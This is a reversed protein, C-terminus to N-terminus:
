NIDPLIEEFQSLATTVKYKDTNTLILNAFTFVLQLRDNSNFGFRVLFSM